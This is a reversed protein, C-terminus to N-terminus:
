KKMREVKIKIKTEHAMASLAAALSGGTTTSNVGDLGFVLTLTAIEGTPIM